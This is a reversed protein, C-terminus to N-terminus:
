YKKQTISVFIYDIEPFSGTKLDTYEDLRSWPIGDTLMSYVMAQIHENITFSKGTKRKEYQKCTFTNEWRKAGTLRSDLYAKIEKVFQVTKEINAM